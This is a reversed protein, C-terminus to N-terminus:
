PIRNERLKLSDNIFIDMFSNGNIISTTAIIINCDKLEGLRRLATIEAFTVGGLFYILVTKKAQKSASAISFRASPLLNKTFCSGSLLKVAEEVVYVSNNELVQKVISCSLPIYAGSFVYGLDGSQKGGTNTNKPILNFKKLTARFSSSRPLSVLPSVMKGLVNKTEYDVFLGTQKLTHFTIMHEHGYSQLFQTKLSNHLKVELGDNTLSLLSMLRLTQSVLAQKMLLEEIYVVCEQFESGDVISNEVNLQEQFNRSKKQVIAECIGIHLALSQKEQQVNKLEKSVFESMKEITMNQRESHDLKLQKAASSLHSVVNSFHRNRIDKYVKDNNDLLVKVNQESQTVHKDLEAYGYKIGFVEDLLGEYTGPTLIISAYDMDRDFLFVYDIDPDKTLSKGQKEKVLMTYMEYTMQSAKGFCFMQRITGFITQIDFLSAAVSYIWTNDRELFFSKYFDPLDLSLVDDDIPLLGLDLGAVEVYGIVGEQELVRECIHLKRPVILIKYRLNKTDNDTCSNIHNAAKRVSAINARVIFVRKISFNTPLTNDLSYIKNVGQEKLFSAGAIRDLPKFLEQDIVLDKLGSVSHLLDGLSDKATQRLVHSAFNDKGAM